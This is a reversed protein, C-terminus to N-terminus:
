RAASHLVERRQPGALGDLVKRLELFVGKRGEQLLVAAEFRPQRLLRVRRAAPPRSPAATPGSAVVEDAGVNTNLQHANDKDLLAARRGAQLKGAM